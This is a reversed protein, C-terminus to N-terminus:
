RARLDSNIYVDMRHAAVTITLHVHPWKDSGPGPDVYEASAPGDDGRGGEETNGQLVMRNHIPFAQTHVGECNM